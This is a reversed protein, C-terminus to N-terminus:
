DFTRPFVEGFRPTHFEIPEFTAEGVGAHHALWADGDRAPDVANEFFVLQDVLVAVEFANKIPAM